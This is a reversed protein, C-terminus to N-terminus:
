DNGFHVLAGAGQGIKAALGGQKGLWAAGIRIVNIVVIASLGAFLVSEFNTHFHREM